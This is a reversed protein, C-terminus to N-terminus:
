LMPSPSTTRAPRKRMLIVRVADRSTENSVDADRRIRIESSSSHHGVRARQRGGRSAASLCLIPHSDAGALAAPGVEVREPLASVRPVARPSTPCECRLRPATGRLAGRFRLSLAVPMAAGLNADPVAPQNRSEALIRRSSEQGVALPRRQVLPRPPGSLVVAGAEVLPRPPLLSERQELVGPWYPLGHAGVGYISTARCSCRLRSVYGASSVSASYACQSREVALRFTRLSTASPHAMSSPSPGFPWAFYRSGSSRTLPPLLIGGECFAVPPVPVEPPTASTGGSGDM